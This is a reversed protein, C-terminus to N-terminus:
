EVIGNAHSNYGSIRIHKIHYQKTLIEMAKIFPGSNDTVIEQLTGWRYIINHLIFNTLSKANESHLMEWEPWHMLSCHAQVIYKYGSSPMLHMTDMYVKAFLPAPSAVTPPILVHQTKQLQCLHCTRMYGTGDSAVLITRYSPCQDCLLWPTRRQQTCCSDSIPSTSRRGGGQPQRKPRKALSM